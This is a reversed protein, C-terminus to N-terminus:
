LIKSGLFASLLLSENVTLNKYYPYWDQIDQGSFGSFDVVSNNRAPMGCDQIRDLLLSRMGLSSLLCLVKEM